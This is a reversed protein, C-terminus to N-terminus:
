RLRRRGAAQHGRPARHGHQLGHSRGAPPRRRFGAAAGAGTRLEARRRQAPDAAPRRRGPWGPSRGFVRGGAQPAAGGAPEGGARAAGLLWGESALSSAITMAVYRESRTLGVGVNFRQDNEEIVIEDGAAPTGVRHRWVRYPRWADDVTVYFLVSADASWA